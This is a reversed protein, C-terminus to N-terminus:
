RKKAQDAGYFYMEIAQPKRWVKWIDVPQMSLRLMRGMWPFYLQLQKVHWSKLAQWLVESWGTELDRYAAQLLVHGQRQQLVAQMGQFTAHEVGARLALGKLCDSGGYTKSLVTEEAVPLTGGGYIWLSNVAPEGRVERAQNVEHEFLLMQMENLLQRWRQADRGHPLCAAVDRGVAADLLTTSLEPPTELRMFWGAHGGPLLEFGEDVFHRNLSARLVEQEDAALALPAPQALLFSDRQLLLHVPSALLWYADDAPLGQGVRALTALPWDQQKAVGFQQCLLEEAAVDLWEVEGRALMRQLTHDASLMPLNDPVNSFLLQLKM